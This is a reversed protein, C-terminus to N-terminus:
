NKYECNLPVFAGSLNRVGAPCNLLDEVVVNSERNLLRSFVIGADVKDGSAVLVTDITGEARDRYTRHRTFKERYSFCKLM